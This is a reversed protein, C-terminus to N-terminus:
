EDRGFAADIEEVSPSSSVIPFLKFYRGAANKKAGASDAPVEKVVFRRGDPASYARNLQIDTPNTPIPPYDRLMKAERYERSSAARERALDTQADTRAGNKEIYELRKARYAVQSRANEVAAGASAQAAAARAMSARAQLAEAESKAKEALTQGAAALVELRGRDQAFDGTLQKLLPAAGPVNVLQGIVAGYNGPKELAQQALSGIQQFRRHQSQLNRDATLAQESRTQAEEKAAAVYEKNLGALDQPDIGEKMGQQITGRLVELISPPQGTNSVTPIEGKAYLSADRQATQAAGLQDVIGRQIEGLRQSVAAKRTLAAAQAKNFESLAFQHATQAGGLAIDGELKQRNLPALDLENVMTAAKLAGLINQRQNDEAALIGYPAGFMENAM